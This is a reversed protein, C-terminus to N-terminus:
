MSIVKDLKGTFPIDIKKKQAVSYNGSSFLIMESINGRISIYLQTATNKNNFFNLRETVFHDKKISQLIINTNELDYGINNDASIAIPLLIFFVMILVPSGIKKNNM